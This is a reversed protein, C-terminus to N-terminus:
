NTRHSPHRCGERITLSDKKGTKTIGYHYLSAEKKFKRVEPPRKKHAHQRLGLSSENPGSTQKRKCSWQERRGSKNGAVTTKEVQKESSESSRFGQSRKLRPRSFESSNLQYESVSGVSSDVDVVGEDSERITFECRSAAPDDPIPWPVIKTIARKLIGSSTKVNIVRLLGDNGSFVQLIRGM